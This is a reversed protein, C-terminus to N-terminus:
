DHTYMGTIMHDGNIIILIYGIMLWGRVGLVLVHM